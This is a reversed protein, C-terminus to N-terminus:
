LLRHGHDLEIDTATGGKITHSHGFDESTYGNVVRGSADYEVFYLHSHGIVEDTMGVASMRTSYEITKSETYAMVEYSFGNLIGDKLLSWVQEDEVYIAVVWSGEKFDLDGKRSIFSEVPYAKIPKRNHQIDISQKLNDLLLYKHALKEIEEKSMMEGHADVADPEYVVGYAIQKEDSFKKFEIKDIAM